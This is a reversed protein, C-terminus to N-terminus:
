SANYPSIANFRHRTILHYQKLTNELPFMVVIFLIKYCTLGNCDYNTESSILTLDSIM